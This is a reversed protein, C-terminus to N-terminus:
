DIRIRTVGCGGWHRARRRLARALRDMAVCTWGRRKQARGEVAGARVAALAARRAALDGLGDDASSSSPRAASGTPSISLEGAARARAWEERSITGDGDTDIRDFADKGARDLTRRPRRRQRRQRM